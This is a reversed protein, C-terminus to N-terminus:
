LYRKKKHIKIRLIIFAAGFCIALALMITYLIYIPTNNQVVVEAHDQLMTKDVSVQGWNVLTNSGWALDVDVVKATFRVFANSGATYAGINIGNDAVVADTDLVLGNPHNVNYLVTSGAVYQMNAPLSDSIVVDTQTSDSTNQYTIQYEVEDGIEADVSDQWAGDESDKFRVQTDVFVADATVTSDLALATLPIAALCLIVALCLSFLGIKRM